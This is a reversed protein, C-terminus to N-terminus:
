GCVRCSLFCNYCRRRHTVICYWSANRQCSKHIFLEVRIVMAIPDPDTELYYGLHAITPSTEMWHPITGLLSNGWLESSLVSSSEGFFLFFPIIMMISYSLYLFVSAAGQIQLFDFGKVSCACYIFFCLSTVASMLFPRWWWKDSYQPFFSSSFLLVKFTMM